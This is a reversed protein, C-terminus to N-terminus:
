TLVTTIIVDGLYSGSQHSETEVSNRNIFIKSPYSKIRMVDIKAYVRNKYLNWKLKLETKTNLLIASLSELM